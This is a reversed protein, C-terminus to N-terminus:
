EKENFCKKCLKVGKVEDDKYDILTKSITKHCKDCIM